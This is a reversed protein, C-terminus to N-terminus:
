ETNKSRTAPFWTVGKALEAQELATNTKDEKELQCRAFFLANRITVVSRLMQRYATYLQDYEHRTM